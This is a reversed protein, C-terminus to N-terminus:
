ENELIKLYCEHMGNFEKLPIYSFESHKNHLSVELDYIYRSDGEIIKVIEYIYPMALLSGNKFRKKVNLYTRGIKYFEEDEDYCKIIYVKFSDFNSSKEGADAWDTYRWMNKNQSCKRCGQGALHKEPSQLFTGHILCVIKVKDKTTEYEVLDYNYRSGHVKDAQEIFKQARISEHEM